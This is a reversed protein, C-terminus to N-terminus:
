IQRCGVFLLGVIDFRLESTALRCWSQPQYHSRWFWPAFWRTYSRSHTVYHRGTSVLHQWYAGRWNKSVFIREIHGSLSRWHSYRGRMAWKRLFISWNHRQLFNRVLCHSKKPADANWHIYENLMARYRDGNVIVAAGQENEFFLITWCPGNVIAM